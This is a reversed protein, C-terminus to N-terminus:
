HQNSDITDNIKTSLTGLSEFEFPSSSQSAFMHTIWVMTDIQHIHICLFMGNNMELISYVRYLYVQAIVNTM